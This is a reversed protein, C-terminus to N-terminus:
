SPEKAITLLELEKGLPKAAVREQDERESRAHGSERDPEV